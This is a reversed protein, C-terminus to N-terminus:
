LLHSTATAAISAVIRSTSSTVIPFTAKGCMCALKEADTSSTVHTRVEYKTEFPITTGSVPQSDVSTPRLRKKMAEVTSNVAADISQPRAQFRWLMTTKRTM